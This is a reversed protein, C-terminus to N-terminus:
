GDNINKSETDKIRITGIPSLSSQFTKYSRNQFIQRIESDTLGTLEAIIKVLLGKIAL